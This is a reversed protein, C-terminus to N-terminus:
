NIRKLEEGEEILKIKKKLHLHHDGNKSLIENYPIEVLDEHKRGFEEIKTRVQKKTELDVVHLYEILEFWVHGEDTLM